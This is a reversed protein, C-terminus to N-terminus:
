SPFESKRGEVTWNGIQGGGQGGALDSRVKDQGVGTLKKSVGREESSTTKKKRVV